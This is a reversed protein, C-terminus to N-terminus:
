AIVDEGGESRQYHDTYVFSGSSLHSQEVGLRCRAGGGTSSTGRVGKVARGANGPAPCAAGLSAVSVSWLRCSAILFRLHCDFAMLEWLSYPYDQQELLRKHLPPLAIM